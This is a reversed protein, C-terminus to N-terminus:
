VTQSFRHNNKILAIYIWTVYIIQLFKLLLLSIENRHDFCTAATFKNFFSLPKARIAKISVTFATTWNASFPNIIVTNTPFITRTPDVM